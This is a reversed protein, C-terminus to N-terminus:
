APVFFCAGFSLPLLDICGVLVNPFLSLSLLMPPFSHTIPPSGRCANANFPILCTREKGENWRTIM